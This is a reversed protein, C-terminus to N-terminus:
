GRGCYSLEVEATIERAAKEFQECLVFARPREKPDECWCSAIIEWLDTSPSEEGDEGQIMPREPLEWEYLRVFVSADYVGGYPHENTMVELATMGFSWIDSYRSAKLLDEQESGQLIQDIVTRPKAQKGGFGFVLERALWRINGQQIRESM